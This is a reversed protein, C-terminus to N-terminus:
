SALRGDAIRAEGGGGQPGVVQRGRPRAALFAVAIARHARTARGPQDLTATRVGTRDSRRREVHIVEATVRGAHGGRAVSSPASGAAAQHEEEVIVHEGRKVRRLHESLKAKLEAIGVTKM